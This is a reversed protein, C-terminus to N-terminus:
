RPKAARECAGARMDREAVAGGNKEDDGNLACTRLQRQAFSGMTEEGAAM